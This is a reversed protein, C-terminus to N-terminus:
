PPSDTVFHDHNNKTRILRLKTQPRVEVGDLQYTLRRAGREGIAPYRGQLFNKVETTKAKDMLTILEAAYSAAERIMEAKEERTPENRRDSNKTRKFPTLSSCVLCGNTREMTMPPPPAYERSGFEFVVARESEAHETLAIQADWHRGLLGSGSGRDVNLREGPYTGKIDHHVYIFAAQTDRIIRDISKVLALIAESDNENGDVLLYLPDLIIVQSQHQNAQDIIHEVITDPPYSYGRLNLFTVQRAVPGSRDLWETAMLADLRKRLANRHLEYNIYLVRLSSPIKLECLDRGEALRLALSLAFHTKGLKAKGVIMVKRGLDFLGTVAPVDPEFHGSLFESLPVAPPLDSSEEQRFAADMEELQEQTTATARLKNSCM